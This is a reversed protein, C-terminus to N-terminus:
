EGVWRYDHSSRPRRPATLGEYLKQLDVCEANRMKGSKRGYRGQDSCKVEIWVSNESQQFVKKM